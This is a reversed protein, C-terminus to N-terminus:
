EQMARIWFEDLLAENLDKPKIMSTYCVYKMLNVYSQKKVMSESPNGTIFNSLHNKKKKNIRSSPERKTPDDFVSTPASKIEDGIHNQDGSTNEGSDTDVSTIVNDLKTKVIQDAGFKEDVEDFLSTIEEEKSFELFITLTKQLWMLLNQLLKPERTICVIPGVIILIVWFFVKM